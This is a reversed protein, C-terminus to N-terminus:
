DSAIAGTLPLNADRIIRDIREVEGRMIEGFRIAERLQSLPVHAAILGGTGRSAYELFVVRDPDSVMRGACHAHAILNRTVSRKEYLRKLKNIAAGVPKNLPKIICYIQRIKTSTPLASIADAHAVDDLAHSSAFLRSVAGDVSAWRLVVNLLLERVDLPLFPDVLGKNFGTNPLESM